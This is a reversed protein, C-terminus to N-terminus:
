TNFLEYFNFVFKKKRLIKENRFITPNNQERVNNSRIKKHYGFRIRVRRLPVSVTGSLANELMANRFASFKGRM